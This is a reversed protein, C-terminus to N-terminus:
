KEGESLFIRFFSKEIYFQEGHPSHVEAECKRQCKLKVTKFISLHRKLKQKEEEHYFKVKGQTKRQSHKRDWQGSGDRERKRRRRMRSKTWAV